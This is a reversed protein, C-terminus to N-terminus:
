RAINLEGGGEADLESLLGPAYTGNPLTVGEVPTFWTPSTAEYGGEVLGVARGNEINWVPGGSDGETTIASTQIVWIPPVDEPFSVFPESATGCHTGSYAGSTCLISGPVSREEGTIKYQASTSAYIWKPVPVGANLQIAEGDTELGNAYEGYSRRAVRGIRIGVAKGSEMALRNVETGKKYCHGATLGLHEFIAEGNSKKGRFETAGFGLTCYSNFDGEPAQIWDGAYLRGDPPRSRARQVPKHSDYTVSVPAGAGFSGALFSTATSPDISGVSVANKQINLGSKTLIAAIDPRSAVRQPIETAINGIEALSHLPQSEFPAIRTPAMLSMEAKLQAVFATQNSTFGIHIIGGQRHDVYFGAYTSPAHSTAWQPILESAQEIYRQRFELEEVDKTRLPVGWRDKTARAVPDGSWWAGILDFIRENLEAESGLPDVVDLGFEERFHRVEEYSPPIPAGPPPPPPPPPINVWFREAATQGTRDAIVVELNLIGAPFGNTNTVWEDTVNVCETEPTEYNQECTEEDVLTNGEAIVQISAIGENSHALVHLTKDGAAMPKETGKEFYLGGSLDEFKPPESANWWKLVSGDEGIDYTVVPGDPPTVTTRRPETTAFAFHTTKAPASGAPDVTVTSVRGYTTNYTAKGVTGNPLTVKKLRGETDYEYKTEGEPGKNAIPLDGSYKYTQTGAEEGKVTTVLGGSTDVEVSPDNEEPAAEGPEAIPAEWRQIRNNKVDAIWVSGKGDAVIGMPYTFSFQGPGSGKSGFKDVYGGNQDFRQVRGNNQDGVWVNGQADVDIADPRQFAGNGTGESGFQRVFDGSEDFVEVRNNLWDAIWVSGGPGVDIGTAEGIEGEGEGYFGVVEIFKGDEDFRQVRGNYTDSVWIDGSTSDIAIGEPGNFEGNGGGYGGFASLYKGDESFEEVRNNDADAVWIDGAGDIALSAPRSLRGKGEGYEGFATVYKGEPDFEEIRNHGKDAVWINGGADLAVDGPSQLQGTGSSGFASRYVPTPLAYEPEEGESESLGTAAAPDTVAIESLEGEEYEYDVRTFGPTRVEQTKGSEDFVTTAETSGSRDTLKYGGGSRKTVDAQLSADFHSDGVKTPLVVRSALLGSESVLKADEPPQSGEAEEPELEPTQALTWGDGWETNEAEPLQSNYFREVELNVSPGDIEVDKERYVLNGNMINVAFEPRDPSEEEAENEQGDPLPFRQLVYDDTIGTAPVYEFEISRESVQGLQDEARVKLTHKGTALGILKLTYTKTMKCSGASCEQQWSQEPAEKSDLFIGLNKVGSQKLTAKSTGDLAEIKLNYVSLKLKDWQKKDQEGNGTEETATALQGNLLIEPARRDVRTEFTYTSSVQGLADTASITATRQGELFPLGNLPIESNYTAPCRSASLGTCNLKPDHIPATGSPAITINQVGLGPDSASTKVTFQTKGSIWGVPMGTPQTLGPAEPDSMWVYAGGAYLDRTCPNAPSSSSGTGLGLIFVQATKERWDKPPEAIAYESKAAESQFSIWGYQPSWTPSWLGDYDHPEPDSSASCGYNFRWFPNVGAVSIWTTAGPATYSWQGYHEAPQTSSTGKARAFLGKESGGVLGKSPSETSYGFRGWDNSQFLWTGNTLAALNAGSLWNNAGYWEDEISPDVLLPYAVDMGRHAIRLALADGEVRMEVPVDAGQADVATPAPIAAVQRDGESVEAGGQGDPRLEAGEPLSLRFRLEEPSEESLLESFLEVGNSIPSALLSTDAQTEPYLLDKDGFRRAISDGEPQEPAIALGSDGVTIGESARRPLTVDVLPNEPVFGGESEVLDLSVKSLDGSEDPVRLPISGEVLMTEGGVKIRAATLGLFQDIEADTFARAPDQELIALPGAFSAELLEAAEVPSAEAYADQSEEREREAEKSELRRQEEEEQEEIERLAEGIDSGDPLAQTEGDPGAPEDVPPESPPSDALVPVASIGLLLSTFLALWRTRRAQGEAFRM